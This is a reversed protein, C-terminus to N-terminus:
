LDPGSLAEAVLHGFDRNLEDLTFPRPPQHFPYDLSTLHLSSFSRQAVALTKTFDLLPDRVSMAFYCPTDYPKDPLDFEISLSEQIQWSLVDLTTTPLVLLKNKLNATITDELSGILRLFAVITEVTIRSHILSIFVRAATPHSIALAVRTLWIKRSESFYLARHTLCPSILILRDIRQALRQFAKMALIGGFSFGMLSFRPAGIADALKEVVEAVQDTTFKGPFPQSKGHGPLEFFYVTFWQAMFLVMTVWNDLESITAPVMILPPGSGARMVHLNLSVGQNLPLTILYKTTPVSDLAAV